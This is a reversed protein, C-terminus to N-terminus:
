EGEILYFAQIQNVLFYWCGTHGIKELQKDTVQICAPAHLYTLLTGQIVEGAKLIIIVQKGVHEELLKLYDTNWPDQAQPM